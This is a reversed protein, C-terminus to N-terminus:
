LVEFLKVVLFFFVSFRPCEVHKSAVRKEGQPLTIWLDRRAESRRGQGAALCCADGHRLGLAALISLDRQLRNNQRVAERLYACSLRPTTVRRRLVSARRTCTSRAPRSAAITGPETNEQACGTVANRVVGPTERMGGWANRGMVRSRGLARSGRHLTGIISYTRSNRDVFPTSSTNTNQQACASCITSYKSFEGHHWFELPVLKTTCVTTLVLQMEAPSAKRNISWRCTIRASKTSICPSTTAFMSKFFTKCACLARRLFSFSAMMVNHKLGVVCANRSVRKPSPFRM